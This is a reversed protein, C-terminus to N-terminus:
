GVYFTLVILPVVIGHKELHVRVSKGATVLTNKVTNVSIQLSEAIEANKLGEERSMRYIKQTQPPLLLIAEKVLRSTENFLVHEETQLSYPQQHISTQDLNKHQVSERELWSYTRNYVIRFIWNAPTEVEALKTRGLWLLLFIDQVLDKAVADSQVMKRIVPEVKPVYRHFLIEFAAEDGEAIAQFLKKDDLLTSEQM